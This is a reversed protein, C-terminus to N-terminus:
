LFKVASEYKEEGTKHQKIIETVRQKIATKIVRMINLSM